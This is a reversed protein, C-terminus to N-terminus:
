GLDNIDKSIAYDGADSTDKVNYDALSPFQMTHSASKYLVPEITVEAGSETIFSEAQAFVGTFCLCSIVFTVSLIVTIFRKM